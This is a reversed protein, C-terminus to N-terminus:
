WCVTSFLNLFFHSHVTYSGDRVALAIGLETFTAKALSISETKKLEM